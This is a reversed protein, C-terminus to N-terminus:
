GDCLLVVTITCLAINSESSLAARPPGFYASIETIKDREVLVTGYFYYYYNIDLLSSILPVVCYM